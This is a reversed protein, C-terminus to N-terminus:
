SASGNEEIHNQGQEQTGKVLASIYICQAHRHAHHM